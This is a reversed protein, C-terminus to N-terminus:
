DRHSVDNAARIGALTTAARAASRIAQAVMEAAYAGIVTVNAPIEGTALAFLTDGDYQTHAPLVARALGDQAMLAM